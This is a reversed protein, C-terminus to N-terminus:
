NTCLITPPPDHLNPQPHEVYRETYGDDEIVSDFGNRQEVAAGGERRTAMSSSWVADTPTQERGSAEAGGKAEGDARQGPDDENTASNSAVLAPAM